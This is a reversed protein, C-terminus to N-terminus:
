ELTYINHLKNRQEKFLSRKSPVTKMTTILGAISIRTYFGVDM